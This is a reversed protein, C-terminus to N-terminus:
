RWPCGEGDAACYCGRAVAMASVVHWLSQWGVWRWTDHWPTSRAIQLLSVCAFCAAVFQMTVVLTGVPWIKPFVAYCGGLMACTRDITRSTARHQPDCCVSADAVVSFLTVAGFLYSGIPDGTHWFALAPLLYFLSSIAIVVRQAPTKQRERLKHERLKHVKGMECLDFSLPTFIGTPDM